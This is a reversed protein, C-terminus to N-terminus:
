VKFAPGRASGQSCAAERPLRTLALATPCALEAQCCGELPGVRHRGGGDNNGVRSVVSRECGGAGKSWNSCSGLAGM